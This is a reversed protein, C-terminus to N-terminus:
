IAWIMGLRFLFGYYNVKINMLGASKYWLESFLNINQSAKYFFKLNAMPNTEQNILFYDYNTVSLSTNWRNDREKLHWSFLYILNWPETIRTDSGKELGLDRITSNKISYIRYNNGIGAEFHKRYYNIIVGINKERLSHTFPSYKYLASVNITQHFLELERSLNIFLGNFNNQDTASLTESVGTEFNYKGKSYGIATSLIVLTGDSAQTSGIDSYGKIKVQSFAPLILVTGVLLLSAIKSVIVM